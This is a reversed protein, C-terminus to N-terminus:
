FFASFSNEMIFRDVKVIDLEGDAKLCLQLIAESKETCKGNPRKYTILKLPVNFKEELIKIVMKGSEENSLNELLIVERAKLPNAALLATSLTLFKFLSKM